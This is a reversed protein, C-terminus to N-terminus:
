QIVIGEEDASNIFIRISDNPCDLKEKNAILQAHSFADQHTIFVEDAKIHTPKREGKAITRITYWVFFSDQSEKEECEKSIYFRETKTM